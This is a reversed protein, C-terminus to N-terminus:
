EEKSICLVDYKITDKKMQLKPNHAKLAQMAEKLPTGLKMGAIDYKGAAAALKATQEPTGTNPPPGSPNPPPTGLLDAGSQFQDNAAFTGSATGILVSVTWLITLGHRLVRKM